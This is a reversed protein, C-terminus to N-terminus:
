VSDTENQAGCVDVSGVDVQGKGPDHECDNGNGPRTLACLLRTEQEIKKSPLWVISARQRVSIIVWTEIYNAVSCWLEKFTKNRSVGLNPQLINYFTNTRKQM